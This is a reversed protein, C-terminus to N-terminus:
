RANPAKKGLDLLVSDVEPIGFPRHAGALSLTYSGVESTMSTAREPIGSNDGLLKHRIAVLAAERLRPPPSDYGHEYEIIVNRWGTPFYGGDDRALLGSQLAYWSTLDTVATGDVSASLITRLRVNDLVILTTDDGNLVERCYRPVFSVGCFGEVKDAFWQRVEILRANPYKSTDSLNDLARIDSLAVYFDGVIEVETRVSQAVSGFTGSWTVDLWDLVAQPALTYDYVGPTTTGGGTATGATVTGGDAGLAEVTVSGDASTAVGGSYFTVSLTNQTNRLVEDTM